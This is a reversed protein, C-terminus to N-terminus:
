GHNGEEEGTMAPLPREPSEGERVAICRAVEDAYDEFAVDFDSKLGPVREIAACAFRLARGFRTEADLARETSRRLEGRLVALRNEGDAVLLAKEAELREIQQRQADIVDCVMSIGPGGGLLEAPTTDLAKAIADLTEPRPWVEGRITKYIASPRVGVVTALWYATKGRARLQRDVEGGLRENLNGM